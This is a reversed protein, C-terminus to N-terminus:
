DITYNGRVLVKVTGSTAKVGRTAITVMYLHNTVLSGGNNLTGGSTTDIIGTTGSFVCTATGVRLMIECGVDGTLTQGSSLTVVSFTASSGGAGGAGGGVTAAWRDIARDLEAKLSAQGASVAKDVAENMRPAFIQNLYSLTVLPDDVSGANGAALAAAGAGLMVAAAVAILIWKWRKKM